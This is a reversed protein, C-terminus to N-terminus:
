ESYMLKNGTDADYIEITYKGNTYDCRVKFIKEEDTTANSTPDMLDQNSDPEDYLTEIGAIHNLREKLNNICIKEGDEEDYMITATTLEIDGALVGVKISKVIREAQLRAAKMTNTKWSSSISPVLVVMLLGIIAVVIVIEVLTFGRAKKMKLGGRGFLM